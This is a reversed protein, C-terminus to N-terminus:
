SALGIRNKYLWALLQAHLERLRLEVLHKERLQMGYPKLSNSVSRYQEDTMAEVGGKRRIILLCDM